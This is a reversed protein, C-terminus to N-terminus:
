RQQGVARRIGMGRFQGVSISRFTNKLQAGKGVIKNIKSDTPAGNFQVIVDINGGSNVNELDNSLKGTKAGAPSVLLLAIAAAQVLRFTKHARM